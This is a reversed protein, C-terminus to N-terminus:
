EQKFEEQVGLIAENFKEAAMFKPTFNNWLVAYTAPAIKVLYKASYSDKVSKKLYGIASIVLVFIILSILLAARAIGLIFGGWKNLNPTAETKIFRCFVNRLLVFIFYGLMALVVFCLPDLLSFFTKEQGLRVRIFDSLPTYYHMSLYNALITGLLKFFEVPLGNKIGVYCIRFLLIVVLGDLWNFQKILDLPM